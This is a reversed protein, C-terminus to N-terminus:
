VRQVCLLTLLGPGHRPAAPADEAPPAPAHATRGLEWLLPLPALLLPMGAASASAPAVGCSHDEHGVDGGAPDTAAAVPVAASAPLAARATADTRVLACALCTLMLVAFLVALTRTGRTGPHGDM